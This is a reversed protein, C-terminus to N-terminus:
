PGQGHCSGGLRHVWFRPGPRQLPEPRLKRMQLIVCSRRAAQQLVSHPQEEQCSPKDRRSIAVAQQLRAVPFSGPWIPARCPACEGAMKLALRSPLYKDM